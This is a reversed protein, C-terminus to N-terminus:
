SIIDMNALSAMLRKTGYEAKKFQVTVEKDNDRRELVETVTGEGFKPHFVINGQKIDPIVPMVKKPVPADGWPQQVRSTFSGPQASQYDRGRSATRHAERTVRRMSEAPIAEVFRSITGARYQGHTMRSQAYTIYLLKQARTIGVYFLRREEEMATLDFAEAEIARYIPLLGEETGAIFVVPYELGKASHLTILTVSGSRDDDITDADSILAVQELYAPLAEASPVLDYRELDTRLEQVNAWRQLDEETGTEFMQRVDMVEVIQDFLEALTLENRKERLIQFATGLRAAGKAGAGTFHPLPGTEKNAVSPVQTLLAELLPRREETAWKLAIDYAAPGFGKGVPLNDIVRLLSVTDSPNYLVRLVAMIDRVERREYFRVGGVIQYRFESTRFAEELARSQATTRYMVAIQEPLVKRASVIRRIESVIWQAEHQQDALERLQIMEGDENATTMKRDIRDKNGRIVRDAAQVIRGTSRYNQELHIETTNPYDAKFNLINTIDAQRWGYISQDPDGVVFLNGYYEALASVMVYQVRNTDQYEDVLIYRFQRQYRALTSPDQDFLRIPLGLLDDFDVANAARLLKEYEAYVRAVIEDDYSQAEAAVDSSTQLVSKAASIRSLMRRPTIQKPDLNANKVATKALEMQDGDDYIVWNPQLQLQEAVRGPNQRLIRVGLSHFTGMVLGDTADEGILKEIRERMERAAKNTFTVALIESPHVNHQQILWAIRHTLVRTKGSGPGAVVLVPGDTTTVALQQQENLGTLLDTATQSM